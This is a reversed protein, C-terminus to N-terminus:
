SQILLNVRQKTFSQPVQREKTWHGNMCGSNSFTQTTRIGPATEMLVEVTWLKAMAMAVMILALAVGQSAYYLQIKFLSIRLNWLYINDNKKM